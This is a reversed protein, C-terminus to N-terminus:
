PDILPGKPHSFFYQLSSEGFSTSALLTSLLAFPLWLLQVFKAFPLCRGTLLMAESSGLHRGRTVLKRAVSSDAYPLPSIM